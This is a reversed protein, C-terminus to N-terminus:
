SQVREEEGGFIASAGVKFQLQDPTWLTSDFKTDIRSPTGFHIGFEVHSAVHNACGDALRVDTQCILRIYAISAGTRPPVWGPEVGKLHRATGLETAGVTPGLPLLV